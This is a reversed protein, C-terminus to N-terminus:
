RELHGLSVLWMGWIGRLPLIPLWSTELLRIALLCLV